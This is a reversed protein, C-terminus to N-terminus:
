SKLNKYKVIYLLITSVHRIPLCLIVQFIHTIHSHPVFHIYEFTYVCNYVYVIVGILKYDRSCSIINHGRCYHVICVGPSINKNNM